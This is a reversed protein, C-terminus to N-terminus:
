SFPVWGVKYGTVGDRPIIGRPDLSPDTKAAHATVIRGHNPRKAKAIFTLGNEDRSEQTVSVRYLAAAMQVDHAWGEWGIVRYQAPRYCRVYRICNDRWRTDWRDEEDHIVVDGLAEPGRCRRVTLPLLDLCKFWSRRLGLWRSPPAGDQRAMRRIGNALSILKQPEDPDKELSFPRVGVGDFFDGGCSERFSGESFTKKENPTFGFFKLASIVDKAFRVPVIIDDGYVLFDRGYTVEGRCATHAIAAFLCTELEFTYGNGMSSFKELRVWKGGVLTYPSRLSDLLEFWKPNLMLKVLNVCVTDSASSLDITALQGDRSASKARLRHIDQGEALNIGRSLLRKKMVRGLGLQYFGNVSPEKACGRRTLATKPVSFFANGRIFSPSNGLSASASAWMTGSWPFLHPWANPTLTPLSSMKDPVTSAQSKDSMTAGPGFRGELLTPPRSGLLRDVEKRCEVVFNLVAEDVDDGM